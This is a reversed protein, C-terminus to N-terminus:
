SQSAKEWLSTLAKAFRDPEARQPPDFHHREPYVEVQIDPFVGQLVEAKRMEVPTSLGAVAIYVPRTYARLLGYPLDFSGFAGVLAKLGAPRKAMWPPPDGAPPPPLPVGERLEVRMFEYMLAKDPLRMVRGMEKWYASEYTFWEQSPIVAPESIALSLVREPYLGTFALAVAGGGSYAVLHFTRIGAAETFRRLGEIEEQLSYNAPPTGDRYVELDKLLPQIDKGLINLLPAYQLAVPQIGGPLFVVKRKNSQDM